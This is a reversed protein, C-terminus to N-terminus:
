LIGGQFGENENTNKPTTLYITGKMKVNMANICAIAASLAAGGKTLGINPSLM